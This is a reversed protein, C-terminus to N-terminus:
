LVNWETTFTLPCPAGWCSRTNQCTRHPPQFAAM